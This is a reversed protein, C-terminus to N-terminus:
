IFRCSAQLSSNSYCKVSFTRNEVLVFCAFCCPLPFWVLWVTSFLGPCVGGPLARHGCCLRSRPGEERGSLLLFGGSSSQRPRGTLEPQGARSCCTVKECGQLGSDRWVAEAKMVEQELCVM